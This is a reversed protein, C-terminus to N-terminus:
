CHLKIMADEGSTVGTLCLGVDATPEAGGTLATEALAAVATSGNSAGANAAMVKANSALTSNIAAIVEAATSIAESGAGTGVNVTIVEGAATVTLPTNAGAVALIVKVKAAGPTIQVLKIKNNAGAGLELSAATGTASAAVAKGEAGVAVVQGAALNAGAVVPVVGETIVGTKGGVEEDWASVGLARAGAPCHAVMINGGDIPDSAGVQATAPMGPGSLMSEIPAVFRKGKVAEVCGGTLRDASEYFPICENSASM